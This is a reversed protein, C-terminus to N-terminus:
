LQQFNAYQVFDNAEFSLCFSHLLLLGFELNNTCFYWSQINNGDFSSILSLVGTIHYIFTCPIVGIEIRNVCVNWCSSLKISDKLIRVGNSSWVKRLTLSVFCIGHYM